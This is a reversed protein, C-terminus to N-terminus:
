LFGIKLDKVIVNSTRYWADGTYVIVNECEKPNSNVKEKVLTDNMFVRIVYDENTENYRQEYYFRTFDNLKM